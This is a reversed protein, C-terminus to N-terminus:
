GGIHDHTGAQRMHFATSSVDTRDIEVEIFHDPADITHPPALAVVSAPVRVGLYYAHEYDSYRCSVFNNWGYSPRGVSQGNIKIDKISKSYNSHVVMYFVKDKGNKICPVHFHATSNAEQTTLPGGVSNPWDVGFWNVGSGGWTRTDQIDGHYGLVNQRV